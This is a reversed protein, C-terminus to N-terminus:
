SVCVVNGNHVIIEGNHTVIKDLISSAKVAAGHIAKFPYNPYAYGNDNICLLWKGSGVSDNQNSSSQLVTPSSEDWYIYIDSTNSETIEYTINKLCILIDDDEDTKSWSVSGAGPDNDGWTLNSIMPFDYSEGEDSGTIVNDQVEGSTVPRTRSPASSSPVIYGSEPIDPELDDGGYVNADYIECSIKHSFEGGQGIGTIRFKKTADATPGLDYLDDKQPNITWTDSITIVQGNVSTVTHTEISDAGTEPDHVRVVITDSGSDMCKSDVIVQNNAPCGIVRGGRKWPPMISVVDGKTSVIADIDSEHETNIKILRNRAMEYYLTRWAQSAKTIGFGNISIKKNPYGINSDYYLLPKQEYDNQSDLFNIEIESARDEIEMYNLKFTGPKTNGASFLQITPGSWPKDVVIDFNRGVPVVQCRAMACVKKVADWISTGTDFVGNFTIRKETGEAGDDVLSDYYQSAEYWNALYPLLRNPHYGDYREIAYPTTPLDDDGDGSIVPQTLIDWLVWAPNNSYELNWSSGDYVNIIRCEWECSVKMSGSLQDTALAEVGLLALSPYEFATDIVERVSHLEVYRQARDDEAFKALTSTVKVDYRKGNTVTVSSGGTYTGTNLYNKFNIKNNSCSLQEDVLTTWSDEDHESIEIKVGVWQTGNKGSERIYWGQYKIAIELSDFDNDPTTWTFPGDAYIVEKKPEYQVKLEDFIADQNILGRQETYTVDSYSDIPLDNIQITGDVIGELPGKGFSILMYMTEEYGVPQTWSGIINGYMKNRGYPRPIAIGAQQTTIGAWTFSQGSGADVDMDEGLAKNILYSAGLAVGISALYPLSAAVVEAAAHMGIVALTAIINVPDEIAPLILVEDGVSLQYDFDKLRKQNVFCIPKKMRGAFDSVIDGIVHGRFRVNKILRTKGIELPNKVVIIKIQETSM